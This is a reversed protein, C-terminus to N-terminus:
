ILNTASGVALEEVRLLENRALLVRGVVIGPAVVGDALVENFSCGVTEALHGICAGPKM